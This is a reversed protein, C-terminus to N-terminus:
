SRVPVSHREVAVWSPGAWNGNELRYGAERLVDDLTGAEAATRLFLGVAEDVAVRAQEPTPGSSMVDLPMAHAIFQRDEKWIQVTYDLSRTNNVAKAGRDGGTM